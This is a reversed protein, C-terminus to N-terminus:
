LNYIVNYIMLMFLLSVITVLVAVVSKQVIKLTSM